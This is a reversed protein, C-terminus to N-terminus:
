SVTFWCTRYQGEFGSYEKEPMLLTLASQIIWQYKYELIYQLGVSTITQTIFQQLKYITLLQM